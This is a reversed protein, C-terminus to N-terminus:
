FFVKNYFNFDKVNIFNNNFNKALYEGEQYAVQATPPFGNYGCDGIAFVNETKNVKYKCLWDFDDDDGGGGGGEVLEGGEAMEEGERFGAIPCKPSGSILYIKKLLTFSEILPITTNSISEKSLFISEGKM